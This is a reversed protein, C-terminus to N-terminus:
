TRQYVKAVQRLRNAVKQNRILNAAEPPWIVPAQKLRNQIEAAPVGCWYDFVQSERRIIDPQRVAKEPMFRCVFAWLAALPDLTNYGIQQLLKEAEAPSLANAPKKPSVAPWLGIGAKALTQWPFGRGPDPKRYPAIDAHGVINEPRIKHRRIIGRALKILSKIQAATYNGQGMTPSQIEIGISHRNIKEPFNRWSSLGAHYAVQNEPVPNLIRGNRMILYHVSTGTKKFVSLMQPTTLAFCHFVLLSVKETRPESSLESLM